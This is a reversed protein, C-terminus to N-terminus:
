PQKGHPKAPSSTTIGAPGGQAPSLAAGHTPMPHVVNTPHVVHDPTPTAVPDSSTRLMLWLTVGVGISAFLVGVLILPM